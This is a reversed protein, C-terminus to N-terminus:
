YCGQRLLHSIEGHCHETLEAVVTRAQKGHYKKQHQPTIWYPRGILVAVRRYIVLPHWGAQNFLPESPDFVSLLRLPFGNTNVEELSAIAIPLIALDQVDARLALHAFGRQFEGVQNPQTFKVMPATGEPFVGVMQKSQLLLQSQSFFSQQRNQTEELPFCGLQDTVIERMVPVQGMYHHCAFRIPSSLAAMLILADMFSRHNSVVLVSADQPIRDEYYRFMQTSLAAVLARSIELPSNRSM